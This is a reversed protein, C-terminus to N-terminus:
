RRGELIHGAIQQGFAELDERSRVAMNSLMDQQRGLRINLCDGSFETYLSWSTRHMAFASPKCLEICYVLAPKDLDTTHLVTSSCHTRLLTRDVFLANSVILAIRTCAYGCLCIHM